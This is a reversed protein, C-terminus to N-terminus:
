NALHYVLPKQDNIGFIVQRGASLSTRVDGSIKIGSQVPSLTKFNFRGTNLFIDGKGCSYAGFKIRSYSQNGGTIIDMKGDANVDMMTISYIPYWQAEMPMPHVAFGKGTNELLLSSMQAAEYQRSSQLKEGFIEKMNAKAYDSYFIFRKNFSPIQQMLDDRSYIPWLQHDIYYSIVPEATGNDDFDNYHMEMPETSSAIYQNNLGQNGAIIDMDGDNDLDGTAITNFLGPQSIAKNFSPDKEFHSTKNLWIEIGM